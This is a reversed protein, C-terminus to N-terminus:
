STFFTPSKLGLINSFIDYSFLIDKYHLYWVIVLNIMMNNM